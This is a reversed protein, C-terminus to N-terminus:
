SGAERAELAEVALRLARLEAQMAELVDVPVDVTRQAPEPPHGGAGIVALADRPWDLAVSIKALTSPQVDVGNEVKSMTTASIGAAAAVAAASLGLAQRRQQVAGAVAGTDVGM